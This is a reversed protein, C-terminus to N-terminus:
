LSARVYIGGGGSGLWSVNGDEIYSDYEVYVDKFTSKTETLSAPREADVVFGCGNKYSFDRTYFLTLTDTRNEFEFIYTTSDANLSIPFNFDRLRAYYSQSDYSNVQKDFISLDIAGPATVKKLLFTDADAEISLQITLERQPGCDICSSLLLASLFLLLIIKM